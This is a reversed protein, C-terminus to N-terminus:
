ARGELRTWQDAHIRRYHPGCDVTTVPVPPAPWEVVRPEPPPVYLVPAPQPPPDKAIAPLAWSAARAAIEFSWRSFRDTRAAFTLLVSALLELLRTRLKM